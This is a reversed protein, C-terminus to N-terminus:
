AESFRIAHEALSDLNPTHIETNGSCGLMNAPQNDVFILLINPQRSSM